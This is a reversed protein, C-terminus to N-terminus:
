SDLCRARRFMDNGVMSGDCFDRFGWGRVRFGDRDRGFHDVVFHHLNVTIALGVIPFLVRNDSGPVHASLLNIWLFM